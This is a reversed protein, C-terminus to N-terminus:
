PNMINYLFGGVVMGSQYLFTIGIAVVYIGIYLKKRKKNKETSVSFVGLTLLLLYYYM